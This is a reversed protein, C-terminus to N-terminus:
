ASVNTREKWVRVAHVVTTHDRNMFKAIQNQSYHLDRVADHLFEHRLPAIKKTRDRSVLVNPDIEKKFAWEILYRKFANNPIRNIEWHSETPMPKSVVVPPVEVVPITTIPVLGASKGLGGLRKRVAIYHAKLESYTWQEQNM